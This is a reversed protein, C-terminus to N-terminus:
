VPPLRLRPRYARRRTRRRRVAVFVMLAVFAAAVIEISRWPMAIGSHPRLSSESVVRRSASETAVQTHTVPALPAVLSGVPTVLGNAEFGWNLLSRAMPWFNPYAHMLTVLITQGHRTAAGVYTGQAAVTYGNKGGIDGRYTTLLENHTYIEFHRNHPAPVQSRVVQLYRQFAPMRFGAQAILALDYASTTEGPGDLGSPTRAYTDYAQLQQAKANMEDVTRKIGGNAEALADAADNASVVLMCTFLKAISYRMSPVLGVRSGDVTADRYSVPVMQHADLKPLLTVATLTKLTSAPLFQGHPDKAALVQGTNLNTVMWSAAPLSSAPPLAPAGARPAVIVGKSGLLPGGVPGVAAAPVAAAVPAAALGAVATTPLLAASLVALLRARM